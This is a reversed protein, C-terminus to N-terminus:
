ARDESISAVRGVEVGNYTVKSGPDMVLGARPALMTLRTIPSLEGRFQLWVFGLVAAFVMLFVLAATRYPPIRQPNEQVPTTM